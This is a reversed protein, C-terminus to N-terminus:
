LSSSPDDDDFHPSSTDYYAAAAPAVMWLPATRKRSAMGTELHMLRTKVESESVCGRGM